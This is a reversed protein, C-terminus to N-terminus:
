IFLWRYLRTKTTLSSSFQVCRFQFTPCPPCGRLLSFLSPAPNPTLSCEEQIGQSQPEQSGADRARHHWPLLEMQLALVELIQIRSDERGATLACAFYLHDTPGAEDAAHTLRVGGLHDRPRLFNSQHHM